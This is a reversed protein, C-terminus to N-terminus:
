ALRQKVMASVRAGDARGQVKPMVAKMVQGMQQPGDAGLEAITEDVIGALEADDLQQPLYAEYVAAEAEEKEASETRGADRFATAAERRRKLEAAVVQQVIEDDLRGQPSMGDAVARNKLAAVVMRLASTRPKDRAKMADRLDTEITDHLSM